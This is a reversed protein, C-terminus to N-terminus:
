IDLSYNSAMSADTYGQIVSLNAPDSIDVSVVGTSRTAFLVDNADDIKLGLGSTFALVSDKTSLNTDLSYVSSGVMAYITNDSPRYEIQNVYASSVSLYASPSTPSWYSIAFLKATTNSYVYAQRSSENLGVAVFNEGPVLLTGIVSLNAPNSANIVFFAGNTPSGGGSVVILYNNTSDFKMGQPNYTTLQIADLMSLSSPNSCDVSQVSRSFQGDYYVSNAKDYTSYSNSSYTPQFQQLVSMNSPDSVDVSVVSNTVGYNNLVVIGDASDYHVFRPDNFGGLSSIVSMSSPNTIDVSVLDDLAGRASVFAVAGSAGGTGGAGMVKKALM